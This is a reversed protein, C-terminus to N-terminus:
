HDRNRRLRELIDTVQGQRKALVYERLRVAHLRPLGVLKVGSGHHYDDYIQHTVAGTAWIAEECGPIELELQVPGRRRLPPGELFMGDESLNTAVQRYVRDDVYENLFLELPM